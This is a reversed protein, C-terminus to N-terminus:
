TARHSAGAMLGLLFAAIWLTAIIAPVGAVAAIATKALVTKSRRWASSDHWLLGVISIVIPVLSAIVVFWDVFMGHFPDLFRLVFFLAIFALAAGSAVRPMFFSLGSVYGGLLLPLFLVSLGYVSVGNGEAAWASYAFYVVGLVLYTLYQIAAIAKM